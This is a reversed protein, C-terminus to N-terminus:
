GIGSKQPAGKSLFDLWEKYDESDEYASKFIFSNFTAPM